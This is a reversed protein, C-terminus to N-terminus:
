KPFVPLCSLMTSVQKSLLAKYELGEQVRRREIALEKQLCHQLAKARDASAEAEDARATQKALEASVAALKDEGEQLNASEHSFISQAVALMGSLQHTGHQLALGTVQCLM